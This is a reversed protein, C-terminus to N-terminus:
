SVEVAKQLGIVKRIRKATKYLFRKGYRKVMKQLFSPALEIHVKQHSRTILLIKDRVKTRELKVTVIDSFNLNQKIRRGTIDRYKANLQKRPRDFSWHQGKRNYLFYFVILLLVPVAFIGILSGLLAASGGTSNKNILFDIKLFPIIIAIIFLFMILYAWINTLEKQKIIYIRSYRSFFIETKSNYLFIFLIILIFSFLIHAPRLIDEKRLTTEQTLPSLTSILESIYLSATTMVACFFILASIFFLTRATKYPKLMFAGFIGMFILASMQIISIRIFLDPLTVLRSPLNNFGSRFGQLFENQYFIFFFCVIAGILGLIIAIVSIITISLPRKNM